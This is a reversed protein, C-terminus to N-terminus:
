VDDVEAVCELSRAESTAVVVHAITVTIFFVFVAILLIAILHNDNLNKM